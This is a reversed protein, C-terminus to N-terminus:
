SRVRGWACRRAVLFALSIRVPNQLDVVLKGPEKYPNCSWESPVDNTEFDVAVKGRANYQVVRTEGYLHCGIATDAKTCWAGVILVGVFAAVLAPIRRSRASGIQAQKLLTTFSGQRSFSAPPSDERKNHYSHATTCDGRTASPPLLTYLTAFFTVPAM